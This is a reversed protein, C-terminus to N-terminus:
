VRPSTSRGLTGTCAPCVLMSQLDIAPWDLCELQLIEPDM